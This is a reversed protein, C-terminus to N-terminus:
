AAVTAPSKRRRLASGILGFGGLMMAWAAPEPVGTPVGSASGDSIGLQRSEIGQYRVSFDSLVLEVPLSSFDLGFTGSAAASINLGNSAGSCNNTPGSDKFCIDIDALGNPQNGSAIVNFMDGVGTSVGTVNPDTSFGFITLRAADIPAGSTNTMTYSFNYTTGTTGLFTFIIEASLGPTAPANNGTFGNYTNTWSFPDLADLTVTKSAGTGSVFSAAHAQGTLAILAAGALYIYSQKM